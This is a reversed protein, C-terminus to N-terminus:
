YLLFGLDTYNLVKHLKGTPLDCTTEKVATVKTLNQYPLLQLYLDYYVGHWMMELFYFKM